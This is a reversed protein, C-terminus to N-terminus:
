RDALASIMLGTFLVGGLVVGLIDLRLGFKIPPPASRLGNLAMETGYPSMPLGQGASMGVMAAYSQFVGPTMMNPSPGPCDGLQMTFTGPAVGVTGRMM